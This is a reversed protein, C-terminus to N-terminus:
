FSDRPRVPMQGEVDEHRDFSSRALSVPSVARMGGGGIPWENGPHPHTGQSYPQPQPQSAPQGANDKLEWSGMREHAKSEEYGGVVSVGAGGKALSLDADSAMKQGGKFGGGTNREARTFRVRGLIMVGLLVLTVFALAVLAGIVGAVVPTVPGTSTSSSGSTNDWVTDNYFLCFSSYEWADCANCWQDASQFAFNGMQAQFQTWPLSWQNTGFAPFVVLDSANTGNRFLVRIYLDSEAPFGGSTSSSSDSTINTANLYSFLEFVLSSAYQPLGLFDSDVSNLQSLAFFSTMPAFDGVLLSVKALSGSSGINNWLQNVVQGALTVGAIMAILNEEAPAATYLSQINADSLYQLQQFDNPTTTALPSTSDNLITLYSSNHNM